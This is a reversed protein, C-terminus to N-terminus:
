ASTRVFEHNHFLEVTENVPQIYAHGDSLAIHAIVTDEPVSALVINAGAGGISLPLDAEELRQKGAETDIFFVRKM